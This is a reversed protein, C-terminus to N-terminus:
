RMTDGIVSAVMKVGNIHIALSTPSNNGEFSEAATIMVAQDTKVESM